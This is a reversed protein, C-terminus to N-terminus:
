DTKKPIKGGETSKRNTILPRAYHPNVIETSDDEQSNEQFDETSESEM